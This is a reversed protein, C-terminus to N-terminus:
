CQDYVDNGLPQCFKGWYKLAEFADKISYNDNISMFRLFKCIAESQKRTFFQRRSLNFPSPMLSFITSDISNNNSTDYNKITWLIYAPLYFRYGKEDLFSLVDSLTEILKDNTDQWNNPLLEEVSLSEILDQSIFVGGNKALINHDIQQQCREDRDEKKLSFDFMYDDIMRGEILTIGDELRVGAFAQQIAQIVQQKFIDFKEELTKWNPPRAESETPHRVWNRWEKECVGWRNFNKQAERVTCDNTGWEHFSNADEWFCVPCIQYTGPPPQELTFYGCCPCPHFKTIKPKSM